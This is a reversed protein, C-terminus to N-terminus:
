LPTHAGGGVWSVGCVWPSSVSVCVGCADRGAARVGPVCGVCPPTDAQPVMGKPSLNCTVGKSIERGGWQAAPEKGVAGAADGLTVETRRQAGRRLM